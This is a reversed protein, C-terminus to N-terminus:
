GLQEARENAAQYTHHSCAELKTGSWGRGCDTQQSIVDSRYRKNQMLYRKQNKFARLHANLSARTIMDIVARKGPLYTIEGLYYVMTYAPFYTVDYRGAFDYLLNQNAMGSISYWVGARSWPQIHVYFRTAAKNHDFTGSIHDGSRYHQPNGAIVQKRWYKRRICKKIQNKHREFVRM